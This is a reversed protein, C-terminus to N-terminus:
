SDRTEAPSLPLGANVRRKLERFDRFGDVHTIANGNTDHDDFVRLLDRDFHELMRIDDVDIVEPPTAIELRPRGIVANANLAGGVTFHHHEGYFLRAQVDGGTDNCFQAIIKNGGAHPTTADGDVFHIPLM